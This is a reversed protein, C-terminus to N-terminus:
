PLASCPKSYGPRTSLTGAVSILYHKLDNKDWVMRDNQPEKNGPREKRPGDEDLTNLCPLPLLPSMDPEETGIAGAFPHTSACLHCPFKHWQWTMEEPVM